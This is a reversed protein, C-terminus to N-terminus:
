SYITNMMQNYMINTMTSDWWHYMDNKKDPQISDQCWMLDIGLKCRDMNAIGILFSNNM